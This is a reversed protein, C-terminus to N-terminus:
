SNKLNDSNFINPPCISINGGGGINENPPSQGGGGGGGGPNVGRCSISAITDMTVFMVFLYTFLQDLMMDHYYNFIDM